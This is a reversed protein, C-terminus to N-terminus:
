SSSRPTSRLLLASAVALAIMIGAGIIEVTSFALTFANRASRALEGALPEPLRSATAMAGGLTLRASEWSEHSLGLSASATM